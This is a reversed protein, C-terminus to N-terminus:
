FTQLMVYKNSRTGMQEWIDLDIDEQIVNVSGDCMGVQVIGPHESSFSLQLGECDIPGVVHMSSAAAMGAPPPPSAGSPASCGEFAAPDKHLNPPVGTSGMAESPDAPVGTKSKGGAIGESGVM